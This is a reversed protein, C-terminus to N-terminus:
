TLDPEGKGIRSTTGRPTSLPIRVALVGGLGIPNYTAPLQKYVGEIFILFFDCPLHTLLLELTYLLPRLPSAFPSNM